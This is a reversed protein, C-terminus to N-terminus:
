LLSSIFAFCIPFVNFCFFELSKIDLAYEAASLVGSSEIFLIKNEAFYLPKLSCFVSPITAITDVFM